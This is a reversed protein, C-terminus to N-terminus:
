NRNNKGNSEEEKVQDMKQEKEEKTKQKSVSVKAARLLRDNLMYGTELEQLVAGGDHEDSEVLMFAEHVEPNFPKGLAEIKKVGYKELCTTMQEQIIKIGDIFTNVDDFDAAHHIARELSDLIPLVDKIIKENGYKILDARDKAAYKKYNELEAVARLYKERNEAAEKEKEQLKALIELDTMPKMSSVGDKPLEEANPTTKKQTEDKKHEETKKKM